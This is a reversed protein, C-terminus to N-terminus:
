KFRREIFADIPGDEPKWGLVLAFEAKIEPNALQAATLGLSKWAEAKDLRSVNGLSKGILDGQANIYRIEALTTDGVTTLLNLIREQQEPGETLARQIASRMFGQLGPLPTNSYGSLANDDKALQSLREATSAGSDIRSWASTFTAQAVQPETPPPPVPEQEKQALAAEIELEEKQSAAVAEKSPPPPPMPRSPTQRTEPAKASTKAVDAASKGTLEKVVALKEFYKDQSPGFGRSKYSSNLETFAENLTTLEADSLNPYERKFENYNTQIQAETLGGAAGQPYQLGKMHGLLPGKVVENQVTEIFGPKLSDTMKKMSGGVSKIMDLTTPLSLKALNVKKPDGNVQPSALENKYKSFLGALALYGKREQYTAIDVRGEATISDRSNTLKAKLAPDSVGDIVRQSEEGFKAVTEEAKAINSQFIGEAATTDGKKSALATAIKDANKEVFLVFNGLSKIQEQLTTQKSLLDARDDPKTAPDAIKASVSALEAKLSGLDQAVTKLGPLKALLQTNELISDVTKSTAERGKLLGQFFSVVKTPAAKAAARLESARSAPQAAPENKVQSPKPQSAAPAATAEEKGKGTDIAPKPSAAEQKPQPTSLSPPPTSLSPPPAGLDAGLDAPRKAAEEKAMQSKEYNRNALSNEKSALQQ